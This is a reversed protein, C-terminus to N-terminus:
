SVIYGNLTSYPAPPVAVIKTRGRRQKTDLRINYNCLVSSSSQLASFLDETPTDLTLQIVDASINETLNGGLIRLLQIFEPNVQLLKKQRNIAFAPIPAQQLLSIVHGPTNLAGLRRREEDQAKVVVARLVSAINAAGAGHTEIISAIFRSRKQGQSEAIEELLRWYLRELRVGSRKQGVLIVKFEPTLDDDADALLRTALDIPEEVSM